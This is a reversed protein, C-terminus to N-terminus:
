FRATSSTVPGYNPCVDQYFRSSRLWDSLKEAGSRTGLLWPIAVSPPDTSLSKYAKGTRCFYFHLPSKRKGCSCYLNADEHQFRDHYDAFDGHMSRIALIRGAIPRPLHLISSSPGYSIQLEEYNHPLVLGWLRTVETLATQRAIRQLSALTCTQPDLPRLAAGEKAAKDAEENGPVKLHGPVWRIRVRGPRTHLLRTREPWKRAVERFEQFVTQSSGTFNGLLRLAVELNDLFVWLDTAFRASPALLALKAGNLAAIAEADFVEANPGLPTVQRNLLLGYQYMVSGAGALGDTGEAKSGDSYVQIDSVPISPLFELFDRAATEKDRGLPGYIRSEALKRDERPEWPPWKIPNVQEAPPLALIQRAFRSTPQRTKRVTVSRLRLPHRPDLRSTRAAFTRSLKNLEIEAPLIGAEKLLAPTPTTRYAPLIARACNYTVKDLLQLHIGTRTTKRHDELQFSRGPWWTEAAFYGVRLAVATVAKQLLHPSVGHVTKSIGQLARATRLAKQALVTTHYRFSLKRDFYVGLWRVPDTASQVIHTGATVGPLSRYDLKTRRTFHLLESKSPDFTIGEGHGWNLIQELDTQLKTCNHALDTSIALLAIDDAYGFRTRPSTLWFLPSIYLMFLIPSIPSGQPLGCYLPTLPGTEGDLRIKVSRNTVFSQVWRVLYDPWGQERLRRVLHGPLVGDFAGKVDLTLLSAQQKRNLATEVDHTLCSTLDVSSRLPLAGFQQNTLIRLQVALWSINRALLRELGKGLVSLLAIPRYARPSTQDPKKPKPIIALTASRFPAPHHGFQLCKQYLDVILPEISPWAIRLIATPIGDLGPATNGARLIANRVTEPTVPPFDIARPATAPSDFPIDDTVSVNTLLNRLLIDRKGSINATLGASPNQPDSFPPSRYSGTTQHWKTIKYVDTLAEVENIKKNWYARKAKRVTNRLNRASTDTRSLRNEQVAAKCDANWWPNGTGQSLARKASGEYTLAIAKTLEDAFLDLESTLPSDPLPSVPRLNDTLLEQFREPDLTDLRLRPTPTTRALDWYITSILPTHDSTVSLHDALRTSASYPGSIFALDLVNGRNHTPLGIESTFSFYNWDLWDTFRPTLPSETTVSPDWRQGLLNFDGAIFTPSSPPPSSLLSNLASHADTSGTPANYLNILTVLLSNRTQLQLYVIDRTTFPRLQAIRLGSGKRVYTIARPRATWDDQPIFTEYAPHRKTIRRTRDSFIYPEQIFIVDILSDFAFELALEHSTSNRATNAQFVSLPRSPLLLPRPM